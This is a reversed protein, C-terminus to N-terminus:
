RDLLLFAVVEKSTEEHDQIKNWEFAPNEGMARLLVTSRNTFICRSNTEIDRWNCSVISLDHIDLQYQRDEVPSGPINLINAKEALMYLDPKILFRHLPNETQLM